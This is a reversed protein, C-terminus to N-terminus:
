AVVPDAKGRPHLCSAAPTSTPRGARGGLPPGVGVGRSGPRRSDALVGRPSPWSVEAQDGSTALPESGLQDQSSGELPFQKGHTKVDAEQLVVRTRAGKPSM